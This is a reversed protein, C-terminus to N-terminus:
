IEIFYKKLKEIAKKEIRSVYSRSINLKKAIERQTIPYEKYLGYRMELVTQERKTLAKPFVKRLKEINKKKQIQEVIDIEKHEVVDVLHIQNGEKDTGIPEYLSIDRATKKKSRLYMLMENDICRAIYTVLKNGKSEDFNLIGKILGITGISIMDEMDENVNQYKKAMHAVLRMNREILIHKAEIDGQKMKTLCRQEEEATLPKLFTKM